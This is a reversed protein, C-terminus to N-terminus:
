TTVPRAEAAAGEFLLQEIEADSLSVRKLWFRTDAGSAAVPGPNDPATRSFRPAPAPQEVGGTQIFTGREINHPHRMAEQFSLVPTVCADTGDFIECWDQCSRKLFVAELVKRSTGWDDQQWQGALEAADVGCLRLFEAYFKPEIAGVAVHKGDACAYTGYFHAGGDLFNSERQDKWLGKAAFGLQAALLLASGDTMASDIVQGEGTLKAHHLAALVGVVLLMGGGAYDGILNLPPVPKDRIGVAHLVGTLAIYNIDHGALHALPGFQGWGTIRGYVLRPNQRLCPEPGLGLREMVGPRFGEVLVDANAILKMAVEVARPDKLNLAVSQRGRDVVGDNQFIGAAAGEHISAGARDIRVVTAGLDALLMCAFPAPGISALEIVTVGTLPGAM